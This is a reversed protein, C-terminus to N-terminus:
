VACCSGQWARELRPPHVLSESLSTHTPCFGPEGQSQFVVESPKCAARFINDTTNGYVWPAVSISASHTVCEDKCSYKERKIKM